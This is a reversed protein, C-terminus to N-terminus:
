EYEMSIARAAMQYVIQRVIPPLWTVSAGLSRELGPKCNVCTDAFGHGDWVANMVRV